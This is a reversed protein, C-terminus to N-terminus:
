SSRYLAEYKRQRQMDLDHVALNPSSASLEKLIQAAKEPSYPFGESSAEGQMRTAAQLEGRLKDMQLVFKRNDSILKKNTDSISRAESHSTNDQGLARLSDVFKLTESSIDKWGEEIGLYQFDVPLPVKGPSVKIECYDNLIDALLMSCITSNQNNPNVLRALSYTQGFYFVLTQFFSLGGSRDMLVNANPFDKYRILRPKPEFKSLVDGVFDVAVGQKPMAHIINYGGIYMAVHSTQASLKRLNSQAFENLSSIKTDGSFLFIDGEALWGAYHAM